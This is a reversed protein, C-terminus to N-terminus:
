QLLWNRRSKSISLYQRLRIQRRISLASLTRKQLLQLNPRHMLHIVVMANRIILSFSLNSSSELIKKVQSLWCSLPGIRRHYRYLNRLNTELSHLFISSLSGSTRSLTSSLLRLKNACAQMAWTSPVLAFVARLKLSQTMLLISTSRPASSTCLINISVSSLSVSYSKSTSTEAVFNSALSMSSATRATAFSSLVKSPALWSRATKVNILLWRYYILFYSTLSNFLISGFFSCAM